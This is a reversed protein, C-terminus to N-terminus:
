ADAREVTVAFDSCGTVVIAAGRDIAGVEVKAEFRRGDIEVQGGPRLATVAVGRRGVLAALGGAAEAAGGGVQATGSSASQVVLRDWVWGKPLYRLLGAFLVIAIALGSGLNLLPRAFADASWAV